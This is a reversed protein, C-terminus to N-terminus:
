CQRLFAYSYFFRMSICTIPIRNFHANKRAHNPRVGVPRAKRPHRSHIPPTAPYCRRDPESGVRILKLPLTPKAAPDPTPFPPVSTIATVRRLVFLCLSIQQNPYAQPAAISSQGIATGDSESADTQQDVGQSFGVGHRLESMGILVREVCKPQNTGCGLVPNRRAIADVMVHHNDAAALGARRESECQSTGADTLDTHDVGCGIFALRADPQIAGAHVLQARGLRQDTWLRAQRPQAKLRPIFRPEASFRIRLDVPNRARAPRFIERPVPM